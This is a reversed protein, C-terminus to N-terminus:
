FEEKTNKLKWGFFSDYCLKPGNSNKRYSNVKVEDNPSLLEWPLWSALAMEPTLFRRTKKGDFIIADLLQMYSDDKDNEPTCVHYNSVNLHAIVLDRGSNWEPGCVLFFNKRTLQKHILIAPKPSILLIMHSIEDECWREFTSSKLRIGIRSTKIDLAKGSKLYFKTATWKPHSSRIVAAGFTPTPSNPLPYPQYQALYVDYTSIPKIHSLHTNIDEKYSVFHLLLQTLHTQLIDVIVGCSDYFDIRDNIDETEYMVISIDDIYSSCWVFDLWNYNLDRFIPWHRVTKKWLYHDVIYLHTDATKNLQNHLQKATTLSLGFPKELAIKLIGNKTPECYNNINRVVTPYDKPPIAVYFIRQYQYVSTEQELESCFKNYDDDSTLQKYCISENFTLDIEQIISQLKTQGVVQKSRGGSFLRINKGKIRQLHLISPWIHKKALDGTGGIFIFDIWQVHSSVLAFVCILAVIQLLDMKFISCADDSIPLKTEVEDDEELAFYRIRDEELYKTLADRQECIELIEGLIRGEEEIEETSKKSDEIAMRDGLWQQLRSHRDELELEKARVVLEEEQRVLNNKERVLAFWEQMLEAEDKEGEEGEGRLAREVQVGRLELQRQKVEVEEMQRQIEQALRLRKQEQRKYVKRAIRQLKRLKEAALEKDKLKETQTLVEEDSESFSDEPAKPASADDTEDTSFSKSKEKSKRSNSKAFNTLISLFGKTERDKCKAGASSEPTTSKIKRTKKGFGSWTASKQKSDSSDSTRTSRKSGSSSSSTSSKMRWRSSEGKSKMQLGQLGLEEDSKLRARERAQQRAKTREVSCIERLIDNAMKGKSKRGTGFEGAFIEEDDAFPIEEVIEKGKNIIDSTIEDIKSDMQTIVQEKPEILKNENNIRRRNEITERVNSYPSLKKAFRGEYRPVPKAAGISSEETSSIQSITPPDELSSAQSVSPEELPSAQSVSECPEDLPSAAQLVTQQPEDLLPAQSSTECPADLSKVVTEITKEISSELSVFESPNDQVIIYECKSGVVNEEDEENERKEPKKKKKRRITVFKDDVEFGVEDPEDNTEGNATQNESSVTDTSEIKNIEDSTEINQKQKREELYSTIPSTGFEVKSPQPSQYRNYMYSSFSNAPPPSIALMKQKETIMELFNKVVPELKSPSKNTQNPQKDPTQTEGLLYREKLKLMRSVPLDDEKKPEEETKVDTDALNPLSNASELKKEEEEIPLTFNETVPSQLPEVVSRIELDRRLASIGGKRRIVEFNETQTVVKDGKLNDSVVKKNELNTEDEEFSELVIYESNIDPKVDEFSELVINETEIDAKVCEFSELIVNESEIDAKVCDFSELIVNEAEIDAEVGEFNELVVNEQEMKAETCINCEEDASVPESIPSEVTEEKLVDSESTLELENLEECPTSDNEVPTLADEDSPNVRDDIKYLEDSSEKLIPYIEDPQSTAFEDIVISPIEHIANRKLNDEEDVDEEYESSSGSGSIGDSTSFINDDVVSDTSPSLMERDREFLKFCRGEDKKGDPSPTWVESGSAAGENEYVEYSYEDDSEVYDEDTEELLSKDVPDQIHKRKWNETLWRTEEKISQELAEELANEDETNDESSLDSEDESTSEFETASTGFNRDTWEDEDMESLTEDETAQDVISNEFEAREPTAGRLQDGASDVVTLRQVTGEAQTALAKVVGRVLQKKSFNLPMGFHQMCLFRGGYNGDATYGYSGLRLSTGCYECKFCGRHFFKGQASLREMLYVRRLCFHCKESGGSEVQPRVNTQILPPHEQKPELVSALQEAMVSVKNSGRQGTELASGEKLKRDLQRLRQDFDSFKEKDESGRSKYDLSKLKDEFCDRNWKPVGEIAKKPQQREKLREELMKVNWDGRELRGVKTNAHIDNTIRNLTSSHLDLDLSGRRLARNAASHTDNTGSLLNELTKIRDSFPVAKGDGFSKSIKFSEARQKNEKNTIFLERERELQRKKKPVENSDPTGGELRIKRNSLRHNLRALLRGGSSWKEGSTTPVLEDSPSRPLIPRAVHPIEGRFVDYLQSLYSIITLEDPVDCNAMEEGSLVQSLGFERDCIQFALDNNQAVLDKNLSHFDILDPRYRHIIACLALGSKWSTSMNEIQLDDYLAVQKQCWHLLTDPHIASARKQKKKPVESIVDFVEEKIPADSDYLSLVQMPRVAELNLNPYRSQPNLTYYTLDKTLNEPTTQALLRYVSERQALVQFSTLTESAWSRIMWCADLSSLFGRACGSGTPWFPELLSDGVLGMLLRHGRRELVKCASEAAYMSTFDFMAVDAQGYHNVAFEPNPLQYNTAFDAADRAYDMLAERDVNDPALLRATDSFDCIIVGKEILSQKKATMVFYHTDDKYYVINELDIGVQERMDQFFKQNFIFAVGSIEEVQAEMETRRNIFNATIAIALKGRFEKRKFGRLTNRKGDAGLLVDFEYQSVPHDAPSVQAHWGIREDTQDLLPENIKEFAVNEHIEVGLLLSVKLLICQLQRISIHDISGACFKGFIKKAGLSRLDHIVFPWLHVVNNRSFRDRKEIVVVKAGLLQAEIAARLGCPGGGIILVRTNACAKGRNYCKHAARKDFKAWLAQAKWSPLKAKLKPYFNQINSPKLKLTDCLHRFTAFIAKFTQAAIFQEFINAALASDPSLPTKGLYRQHHGMEM